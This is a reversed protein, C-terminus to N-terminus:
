NKSIRSHGVFILIAQNKDLRINLFLSYNASIEYDDYCLKQPYILIELKKKHWANLVVAPFILHMSGVMCRFYYQPFRFFMCLITIDEYM